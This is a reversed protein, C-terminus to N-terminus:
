FVGFLMLLLIVSLPVGLLWAIVPMYTRRNLFCFNDRPVYLAQLIWVLARTLCPKCRAIIMALCVITSLKQWDTQECISPWNLAASVSNCRCLFAM